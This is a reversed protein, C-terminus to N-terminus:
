RFMLPRNFLCSWNFFSTYYVCLDSMIKNHSVQSVCIISLWISRVVWLSVLLCLGSLIPPPTPISTCLFKLDLALGLRCISVSISLCTITSNFVTLLFIRITDSYLGGFMLTLFNRTSYLFKILCNFLSFSWSITMPM